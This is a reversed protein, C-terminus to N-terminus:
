LKAKVEEPVQLGQLKFSRELIRALENEKNQEKIVGARVMANVYDSKQLYILRAAQTVFHEKMIQVM